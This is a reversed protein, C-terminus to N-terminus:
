PVAAVLIKDRRIYKQSSKNLRDSRGRERRANDVQPLLRQGCGDAAPVGPLRAAFLQVARKQEENQGLAPERQSALTAHM